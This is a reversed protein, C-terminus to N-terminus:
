FHGHGVEYEFGEWSPIVVHTGSYNSQGNVIFSGDAPCFGYRSLSTVAPNQWNGQFNTLQGATHLHIGYPDASQNSGSPMHTPLVPHKAEWHVGTDHRKWGTVHRSNYKRYAYRRCRAITVSPPVHEYPTPKSTSTPVRELQFGTAYGAASFGWQWYASSATSIISSPMQFVMYYRSFTGTSTGSATEGTTQYAGGSSPHVIPITTKTSGLDYSFAQGGQNCAATSWFSVCWYSNPVFVGMDGYDPLEVCQVLAGGAGNTQTSYSFGKGAPVNSSRSWQVSNRSQFRDTVWGYAHHNGYDMSTNAKRGGYTCDFSGNDFWNKRGGVPGYIDGESTIRMKETPAGSTVGMKSTSFVLDNSGDGATNRIGAITALYKTEDTNAASTDFAIGGGGGNVNSGTSTMHIYSPSSAMVSKIHVAHIPNDNNIGIKGEGTIRFREDLSGGDARTEVVLDGGVNSTGRTKGMLRAQVTHATNSAFDIVGIVQNTTGVSENRSITYNANGGTKTQLIGGDSKIRLREAINGQQPSTRFVLHGDDKNTTDSGAEAFIDAVKDGDWSFDIYALEGGASTNNSDFSLKTYHNGTSKLIVANGNATTNFQLNSGNFTLNAEGNLNVGSGGTIVRNDANNAITAQAPLNTLSAGSGSFATATIVGANGAKINSGVDLQGGTVKLGSRATVIGISDINIVEDYTLTGGITVNGGFTAPCRFDITGGTTGIGIATGTAPVLSNVKLNSSM